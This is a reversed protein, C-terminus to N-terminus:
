VAGFTTLLARGVYVVGCALLLGEMLYTHVRLGLQMVVRRAFYAGPVMCLGILLGAVVLERDLLNVRGFFLAKTLNVGGAIMGDTGILAGGRMGAWLLISVLLPGMGPTAGAFLGFGAGSVALGRTGIELRHHHLWRRVPVSLGLVIGILWEAGKASLSAYFQAGLVACPLAPLLIVLAKPWDIDRRNFWVRGGNSFVMAVASVPITAQAGIIPALFAIVILASGFGSMAGLVSAAFAVLAIAAYHLTSLDGITLTHDLPM